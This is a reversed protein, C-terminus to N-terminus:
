TARSPLTTSSRGHRHFGAHVVNGHLPPTQRWCYFISGHLPLMQRRCHFQYLTDRLHELVEVKSATVDELHHGTEAMFRGAQGQTNPGERAEWELVICLHQLHHCQLVSSALTSGCRWPDHVCQQHLRGFSEYPGSTHSPKCAVEDPIGPPHYTAMLVEFLHDTAAMLFEAKDEHDPGERAEMALVICMHKEAPFSSSLRTRRLVPFCSLTHSSTKRASHTGILRRLLIGPGLLPSHGHIHAVDFWHYGFEISWEDIWFVVESRSDEEFGRLHAASVSLPVYEEVINAQFRLGACYLRVLFYGYGNFDDPQDRSFTCIESSMCWLSFSCPFPVKHFGREAPFRCLFHDDRPLSSSRPVARAFYPTVDYFRVSRRPALSLVCQACASAVSSFLRGRLRTHLTEQCM